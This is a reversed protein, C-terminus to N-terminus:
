CTNWYGYGEQVAIMLVTWGENEVVNFNIEKMNLIAYVIENYGGQTAAFLATLGENDAANVDYEASRISFYRYKYSWIICCNDSSNGWKKFRECRYNNVRFLLLLKLIVEKHM